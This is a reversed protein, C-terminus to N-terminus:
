LFFHLILAKIHFFLSKFFYKLYPRSTNDLSVWRYEWDWFSL